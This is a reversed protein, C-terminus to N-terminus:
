ITGYAIYESIAEVYCCGQKNQGRMKVAMGNIVKQINERRGKAPLDSKFGAKYKIYLSCNDLQELKTKVARLVPVHRRQQNWDLFEAMYKSIIVKTGPIEAMRQQLTEDKIKSLEDVNVVTVGPLLLASKEVNSPVSLDIILKNETDELHSQLIIPEESSTAVLIIDANRIAEPMDEVPAFQLNLERALLEAKEATRNILTIQAAPIYDVLNKCTNRGIKGTGILLIKKGPM